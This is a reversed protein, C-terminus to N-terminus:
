GVAALGMRSLAMDPEPPAGTGQKRLMEAWADRLVTLRDLSEQIGALDKRRNSEDLRRDLYNYLARMTDAFQGGAKLDLASNLESLIAQARQVNNHVGMNFELPDEKGFSLRAGELYRVAGDLLMLVLQGPPATHASTQRYALFPNRM